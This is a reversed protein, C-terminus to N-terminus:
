SASPIIAIEVDPIEWQGLNSNKSSEHSNLKGLKHSLLPRLSMFIFYFLTSKDM